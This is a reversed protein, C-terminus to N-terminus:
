GNKTIKITITNNNAAPTYYDKIRFKFNYKKYNNQEFGL